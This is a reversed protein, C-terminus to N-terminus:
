SGYSIFLLKVKEKFGPANNIDDMNISGGSFMGVHSFVDPNALTIIRTQMGGMSLGAMARNPQNALTRYNSDIMPIIDELLTKKFGDTWGDPPWTGAPREGQRPPRSQETMHWTGNDMVIIFQKAKGEAILNDMILNTRGQNPWGTEDEGGGHQIYLVPYSGNINKDYGPPTYINLTRWTQPTNSFYLRSRIDGHPVDKISYFEVGDDLIDIGSAMRGMSYFTKSSPDCVAVGDLVVSYYHFGVTVPDTTVKWVGESDKVMDYRKGLDIQVKQADPAKVRLIVKNDPLIRPYEAGSINTTAPKGLASENNKANTYVCSIFLILIFFLTRRM